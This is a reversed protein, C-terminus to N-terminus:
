HSYSSGHDGEDRDIDYDEFDALALRLLKNERVLEVRRWDSNRKANKPRSTEVEDEGDLFDGLSLEDDYMELEWDSDPNEYNAPESAGTNKQIGM